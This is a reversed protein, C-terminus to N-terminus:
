LCCEGHEIGLEAMGGEVGGAVVDYASWGGRLPGRRRLPATGATGHEAGVWCGLCGRWGGRQEGGGSGGRELGAGADGPSGRRAPCPAQREAHEGETGEGM